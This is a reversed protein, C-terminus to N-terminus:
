FYSYAFKGTPSKSTALENLYGCELTNGDFVSPISSSYVYSIPLDLGFTGEFMTPVGLGHVQVMANMSDINQSLFIRIKDFCNSFFLIFNGVQEPPTAAPCLWSTSDYGAYQFSPLEMKMPCQMTGFISVNGDLLPSSNYIVNNASITSMEFHLDSYSTQETENSFQECKPSGGYDSVIGSSAHRKLPYNIDNMPLSDQITFNPTLFNDSQKKYDLKEFIIDDFELGNGQSLGNSRKKGRSDDPSHCDM